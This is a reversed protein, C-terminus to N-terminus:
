LKHPEVTSCPKLNNLATQPVDTNGKLLDREKNFVFMGKQRKAINFGANVDAHEVYGCHPCKFHKGQRIGEHGCRSCAKSTNAPEVFAVPVGLLRAKYWIMQRLQYFSWSHLNYKQKKRQKATKRIDKLEELAIGIKQEKADKVIKKSIKHNINKIINKERRKITKLKKFKSKSQLKKRISKYKNHIHQCQKGLKTVKGTALNSAVLVHSKSNLDCGLWDKPKYQKKEPMSFSIYMYENDIEIQNIKILNKPLVAKQRHKLSPIYIESNNYKIGQNPITLKVSNIRKLKKNRSYKRLIQNAIVSKLGIHKVDKSTLTKHKLSHEAVKKALKLERSFEKKHKIKYTLIM